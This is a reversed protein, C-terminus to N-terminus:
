RYVRRSWPWNKSTVPSTAIVSRDSKWTTSPTLTYTKFPEQWVRQFDAVFPMTCYLRKKVTFHAMPANLFSLDVLNWRQLSVAWQFDIAKTHVNQGQYHPSDPSNSHLMSSCINEGFVVEPARYQDSGPM